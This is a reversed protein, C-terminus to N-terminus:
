AVSQVADGYTDAIFQKVADSTLVAILAKSIESNEEGKRVAIINAYQATVEKSETVIAKELGGALAYNGPIVSIDVDPLTAVLVEANVENYTNTGWDYDEVTVIEKDEASAKATIIGQAELLRLARSQNTSDNAIGIILNGATLNVDKKNSYIGLPEVHVPGLSALQRDESVFSNYENLYSGHQFYNAYIDGDSTSPNLQAWTEVEQIEINIGYEEKLIDKAFELIEAHPVSTAGIVVTGDKRIGDEIPNCAVLATTALVVLCIIALISVLKKM